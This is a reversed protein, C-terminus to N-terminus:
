AFHDIKPANPGVCSTWVSFMLLEESGNVKVAMTAKHSRNAKRGALEPLSKLQFGPFGRSIRVM